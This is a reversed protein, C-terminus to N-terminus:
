RTATPAGVASAPAARRPPSGPASTAPELIARYLAPRAHDLRGHRARRRRGARRVLRPPRGLGDSGGALRYQEVYTGNAKLYAVVRPNKPDFGYIRARAATAVGVHRAPSVRAPGSSRRRGAPAAQWGESKGGVLRLIQGGDALWIDGDIYM